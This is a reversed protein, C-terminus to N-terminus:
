VCLVTSLGVHQELNCSVAALCEVLWESSHLEKGAAERGSYRCSFWHQTLVLLLSCIVPECVSFGCGGTPFVKCHGQGSQLSECHASFLLLQWFLPHQDFEQKVRLSRYSLLRMCAALSPGWLM